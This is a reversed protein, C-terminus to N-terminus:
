KSLFSTKSVEPLQLRTGLLDIRTNSSSMKKEKPGGSVDTSEVRGICHIELPRLNNKTRIENVKHGGKLTEASVM